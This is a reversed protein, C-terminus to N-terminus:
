KSVNGAVNLVDWTTAFPPAYCLDLMGLQDTTMGATIATAIVNARQVADKYGAIQGGLIVKTKAHYILKVLLKERGPYYHTQNYNTICKTKYDINLSKAKEETLGTVAAEMDLVKICSSALSGPFSSNMGGLNEGVIRGLKNAGTALPVYMDENTVINKITACDGASYVDKVSTRGGEDVIIAGNPLMDINTNKLFATNPKVGIAIVVLDTDIEGNNTIIKTIKNNVVYEKVTEGLHLHINNKRLEEELLDTIEKDFVKNLVRSSRGVLHINKNLKKAAEITEIGIFGAGLIVINNNEENHMLERLKIGDNMNKLTTLNEYSKDFSPMISSAGTAIMLEDYNDTFVEETLSDKITLTKSDTNVDIVEKFTRLDIGSEIFKSKERAIMMNSDQFFGGVYYPLGCAGFSVIDTKEYVIVEYDPKIRKLKAAASMGAAVAGIIIVKM